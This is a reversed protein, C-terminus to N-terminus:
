TRAYRSRMSIYESGISGDSSVGFFTSPGDRVLCAPLPGVGDRLPVRPKLWAIDVVHEARVVLSRGLANPARECM